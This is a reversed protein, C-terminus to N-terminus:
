AEREWTPVLHVRDLIGVHPDVERMLKLEQIVDRLDGSGDICLEERLMVAKYAFAQQRSTDYFFMDPEGSSEEKGDLDWFVLPSLNLATGSPLNVLYVAESSFAYEGTYVYLDVFPRNSGRTARFLGQFGKAFRRQKVDQFYGIISDSFAEFLCNGLSAIL